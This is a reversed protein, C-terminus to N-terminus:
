DEGEGRLVLETATVFSAVEQWKHMLMTAVGGHQLLRQVERMKPFLVGLEHRVEDVLVLFVGEEEVHGEGVDVGGPVGRLLLISSAVELVGRPPTHKAVGQILHVVDDPLHDTQADQNECMCELM